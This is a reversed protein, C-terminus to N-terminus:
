GFKTHELNRSACQLFGNLVQLDCELPAVHLREVDQETRLGLLKSYGAEIQAIDSTLIRKM